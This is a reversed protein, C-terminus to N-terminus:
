EFLANSASEAPTTTQTLALGPEDVYDRFTSDNLM